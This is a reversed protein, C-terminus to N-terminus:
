PCVVEEGNCLASAAKFLELEDELDKIRRRARPLEYPEFSKGGPKIGASVLAQREWRYPTQVSVEHEHALDEVRESDLIRRGVTNRIVTSYQFSM